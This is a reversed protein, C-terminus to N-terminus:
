VVQLSSSITTGPLLEILDIAELFLVLPAFGVSVKGVLMDPKLM